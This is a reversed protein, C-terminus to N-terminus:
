VPLYGVAQTSTSWIRGAVALTSAQIGSGTHGIVMREVIRLTETARQFIFFLFLGFSNLAFSKTWFPIEINSVAPFKPRLTNM